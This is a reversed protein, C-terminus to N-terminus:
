LETYKRANGRSKEVPYKKANKQLKNLIISKIDLNNKYAMMFSYTLIDALEDELQQKDFDKDSQQPTKWLFIENLEAAEISIAIALDKNNHFKHWDRQDSFQKIAQLIQQLESM